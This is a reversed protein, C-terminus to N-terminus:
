LSELSQTDTESKHFTTNEQPFYWEVFAGKSYLLEPIARSRAASSRNM